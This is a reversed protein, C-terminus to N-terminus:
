PTKSEEEKLIKSSPPLSKLRERLENNRNLLAEIEKKDLRTGEKLVFNFVHIDQWHYPIMNETFFDIPFTEYLPPTITIFTSFGLYHLKKQLTEESPEAESNEETDETKADPTENGLAVRKRLRVERTGYFDFPISVPTKGQYVGDLYVEADNPTSQIDIRREVCSTLLLFLIPFLYLFPNM